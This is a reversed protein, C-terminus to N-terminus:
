LLLLREYQLITILSPTGGGFFITGVSLNPNNKGAYKIEAILADVFDPIIHEMDIYTNFACYTCMTRCFPIHLYISLTQTDM